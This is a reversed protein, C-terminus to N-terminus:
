QLARFLASILLLLMALGSAVIAVYTAMKRRRHKELRARSEVVGMYTTAMRAVQKDAGGPRRDDPVPSSGSPVETSYRLKTRGIYLLDGEQLARATTLREGNVLTVGGRPHLVFRGEENRIEAHTRSVDPEQLLVVSSLDRGITTSERLQFLRGRRADNLYAILRSHAAGEAFQQYVFEASNLQIRDGYALRHWGGEIEGGNVMVRADPAGRIISSSGDEERMIIAHMPLLDHDLLRWAAETGSGIILVGPSLARSQHGYKLYPM